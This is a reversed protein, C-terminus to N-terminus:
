RKRVKQAIRDLDRRGQATMRRGGSPDKELIGIKELQQLINRILAGSALSSHEPTVGDRFSISYV